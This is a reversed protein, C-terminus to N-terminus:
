QRLWALLRREARRRRHRLTDSKVGLEAALDPLYVDGIRTASILEAQEGNVVGEAVARALVLDPHGWPPPPALSRPRTASRRCTETLERRRLRDGRRYAAWLLRAAVRGRSPDLRDLAELLGVLVEADLDATDGPYGRALRGATRRLGPLLVGALGVKWAPEGAHARRVLVALAADRAAFGCSPHLLISRLEDLPIARAPLGRGVVAGDLTLPDPGTVLLRFADDLTDLPSPALPM